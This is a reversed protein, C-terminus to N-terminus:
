RRRTGSRGDDHLQGGEVLRGHERRRHEAHVGALRAEEALQGVPRRQPDRGAVVRETSWSVLSNTSTISSM